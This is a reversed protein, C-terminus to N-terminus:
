KSDAEIGGNDTLNNVVPKANSSSLLTVSPAPSPISVEIFLPGSGFDAKEHDTDFRKRVM